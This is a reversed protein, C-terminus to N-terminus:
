FPKVRMKPGCLEKPQIQYSPFFILFFFIILRPSNVTDPIFERVMSELIGRSIRELSRTFYDLDM